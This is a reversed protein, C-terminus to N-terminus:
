YNMFTFDDNLNIIPKNEFIDYYWEDWSTKILDIHSMQIIEKPLEDFEYSYLEYFKEKDIEDVFLLSHHEHNLVGNFKDVREKWLPCGNAAYYEWNFWNKSLFENYDYSTNINFDTTTWRALKFSGITKSINFYRKFCLTNYIQELGHKQTLPILEKEVKNIFEIDSEKPAVFINCNNLIDIPTQLHCIFALLYHLDDTYKRTNWKYEFLEKDIGLSKLNPEVFVMILKRINEIKEEGSDVLLKIYYCINEIHGNEISILLKHYKVSYGTLWKYKSSVCKYIISPCIDTYM